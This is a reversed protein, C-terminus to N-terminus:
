AANLRRALAARIARVIVGALVIAILDLARSFLYLGPRVHLASSYPAQHLFVLLFTAAISAGRLLILTTAAVMERGNALTAVLCGILFPQLARVISIGDTLLWMYAVYHRNSYPQQTRLLAVIFEEPFGAGFWSLLFGVLLAGALWWPAVRFAGGALHATTRVCQLWYWRRARALGSSAALDLFEESLDGLIFEAQDAPCFLDVFCAALGPPQPRPPESTM